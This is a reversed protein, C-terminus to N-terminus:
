TRTLLGVLMTLALCAVTVFGYAQKVRGPRESPPPASQYLLVLFSVSILLCYIVIRLVSERLLLAITPIFFFLPQFPSSVSGGTSYVLRTLVVIDLVFVILLAREDSLGSFSTGHFLPSWVSSMSETFVLAGATVLLLVLLEWWVARYVREGKWWANRSSAGSLIGGGIFLIVAMLIQSLLAGSVITAPNM